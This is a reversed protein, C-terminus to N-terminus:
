RNFYQEILACATVTGFNVMFYDVSQDLGANCGKLLAAMEGQRFFM